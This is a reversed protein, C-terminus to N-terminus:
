EHTSLPEFLWLGCTISLVDFALLFRLWRAADVLSEPTAYLIDYTGRAGALLVPVSLPYVLLPLLLERGRARGLSASFLSAIATYGLIGLFLLVLLRGLADWGALQMGFLLLLGPVVVVVVLSMLLAMSLLKSLYIAARSLPSLLLGRLTDSEREREFSRSIGVLGSLALAVWLVGAMVEVTPPSGGLFAFSFLLVIIAAFLMTAYILEGARLEVRIDKRLLLWVQALFQAPSM